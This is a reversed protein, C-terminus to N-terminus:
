RTQTGAEAPAIVKALRRRRYISYEHAIIFIVLVLLILLLILGLFESSSMEWGAITLFIDLKLEATASQGGAVNATTSATRGGKSAAIEYSGQPLEMTVVGSADTTFTGVNKITVTAGEIGQGRAGIVKVTLKGITPVTVGIAPQRAASGTYGVALGKWSDVSFSISGPPVEKVTISGSSDLTDTIKRGDPTTITVTAGAMPTGFPTTFTLQVDYIDLKVQFVQLSTEFRGKEIKISQKAVTGVGALDVVVQYAGHPAQGHDAPTEPSYKSSADFPWSKVTDKALRLIISGDTAPKHQTVVSDPWTVTVTIKDLISQSLAGGQANTLVLKAVYVFTELTTGSGPKYTRPTDYDTITDFIVIEKPIKGAARLLYSDRWYVLLQYRLTEDPPVLLVVNGNADTFGIVSPLVKSRPERRIAAVMMNQLPKGSWDFVTVKIADWELPVCQGGPMNNDLTFSVTTCLTDPDLVDTTKLGYPKLIDDFNLQTLLKYSIGSVGLFALNGTFVPLSGIPTSVTSGKTPYFTATGDSGTYQTALTSTADTAGVAVATVPQNALPIRKDRLDKGFVQACFGEMASTYVVKAVGSWYTVNWAGGLMYDHNNGRFSKGDKYWTPSPSSIDNGSTSVSTEIAKVTINYPGVIYGYLGGGISPTDPVNPTGYKSGALVYVSTISAGFKVPANKVKHGPLWVAVPISIVGNKDDDVASWAVAGPLRIAAFDPKTISLYSTSYDGKLAAELLKTWNAADNRVLTANLGPVLGAGLKSVTYLDLNVVWTVLRLEIEWRKGGEKWWKAGIFQVIPHETRGKANLLWTYDLSDTKVLTQKGSTENFLIVQSSIVNSFNLPESPKPMTFNYNYVMVGGYWVIFSYNAGAIFLHPYKSNDWQTGTFKFVAKSQGNGWAKDANGTANFIRYTVPIEPWCLCGPGEKCWLTLNYATGWDTDNLAVIVPAAGNSTPLEELINGKHDVAKLTFSFIWAPVDIPGVKCAAPQSAILTTLDWKGVLLGDDKPHRIYPTDPTTKLTVIISNTTTDYKLPVKQFTVIGQCDTVATETYTKTTKKFYDLTVSINVLPANEDWQTVRLKLDGVPFTYIAQSMNAINGTVVLPNPGDVPDMLVGKFALKVTFTGGPVSLQPVTGNVGLSTSFTIPQGGTPTYTIVLLANPDDTISLPRGCLDLVKINVNYVKAILTFSQAECNLFYDTLNLALKNDDPTVDVYNETGPLAYLVTVTYNYLKGTTLLGFPVPLFGPNRGQRVILPKGESTTGGGLLTFPPFQIYGAADTYTNIPDFGPASIIVMAGGLPQVPPMGSDKVIASVQVVSVHIEFEWATGDFSAVMVPKTTDGISVEWTDGDSIGTSNFSETFVHIGNIEASITINEGYLLTYDPLWFVPEGTFNLPGEMPAYGTAPNVRGVRLKWRSTAFEVKIVPVEWNILQNDCFDYVSVKAVFTYARDTITLAETDQPFPLYTYNFQNEPPVPINETTNLGVETPQLESRYTGVQVWDLGTVVFNLTESGVKVKFSAVQGNGSTYKIEWYIDKYLTTNWMKEIHLCNPALTPKIDVQIAGILFPKSLAHSDGYSYFIIPGDKSLRVEFYAPNTLGSEPDKYYLPYDQGGISTLAQFTFNYLYGLVVASGNLGSVFSSANLGETIDLKTSNLLFTTGYAHWFVSANYTGYYIKNAELPTPSVVNVTIHGTGNTVGRAYAIICNARQTENFVVITVEQNAFPTGWPTVLQVVAAKVPKAQATYTLALALIAVALIGLLYKNSM